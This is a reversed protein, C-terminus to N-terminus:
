FKREGKLYRLDMRRACNGSQSNEADPFRRFTPGNLGSREDPLTIELNLNSEAPGDRFAAPPNGTPREAKHGQAIAMWKGAAM